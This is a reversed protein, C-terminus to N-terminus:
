IKSLRYFNKLLGKLNNVRLEARGIENDIESIQDELEKIKIINKNNQIQLIENMLIIYKENASANALISNEIEADKFYFRVKRDSM